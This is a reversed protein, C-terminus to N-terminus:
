INVSVASAFGAAAILGSFISIASIISSFLIFNPSRYQPTFRKCQELQLAKM